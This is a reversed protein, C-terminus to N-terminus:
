HDIAGSEAEAIIALKNGPKALVVLLVVTGVFDAFLHGSLRQRQADFAKVEM